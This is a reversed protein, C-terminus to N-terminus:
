KAGTVKPAPAGQQGAASEARHDRVVPREALQGATPKNVLGIGDKAIEVLIPEAKDLFGAIRDDTKNKTRAALYDVGKVVLHVVVGVGGVAALVSILIGM